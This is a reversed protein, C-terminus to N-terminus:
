DADILDWAENVQACDMAASEEREAQPIDVRVWKGSELRWRSDTGGRGMGSTDSVRYELTIQEVLGHRYAFRCAAGKEWHGALSFFKWSRDARQGGIGTFKLYSM